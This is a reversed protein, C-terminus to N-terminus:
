KLKYQHSTDYPKRELPCLCEELYIWNVFVYFQIYCRADVYDLMLWLLHALLDVCFMMVDVLNVM